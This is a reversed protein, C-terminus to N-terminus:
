RGLGYKRKLADLRQQHQEFPSSTAFFQRVLVFVLLLIGTGVTALIATLSRKPSARKQPLSPTQLVSEDAYGQVEAEVSLLTEQLRIVTASISSIAEALLGNDGAPSSEELLKQATRNAVQLEQIQQELTTKRIELRKLKAGRPRLGSFTHTIIENATSQAAGPSHATVTLTVLKDNRGVQTSVRNKLEIRTQEAAEESLDKLLGLNNLTADLVPDTTMYSAVDAEARLIATSQFTPPILFTMGYVLAGALLPGLILLWLNEAITLLVDFFDITEEDEFDDARAPKNQDMSTYKSRQEANGHNM